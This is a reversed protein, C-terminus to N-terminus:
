LYNRPGLDNNQKEKKFPEYIRTPMRALTLEIKQDKKMYSDEDAAPVSMGFLRYLDAKEIFPQMENEDYNALIFNGPIFAHLKKPM